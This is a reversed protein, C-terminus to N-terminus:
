PRPLGMAALRRHVYGDLSVCPYVDATTATSNLRIARLHLSWSPDRRTPWTEGRDRAKELRDAPLGLHGALEARVQAPDTSRVPHGLAGSLRALVEATSLGAIPRSAQTLKRVRRDFSVLTGESEVLTAAPLVVQAARATETLFHDIVVLSRLQELQRRSDPDGLPNELM